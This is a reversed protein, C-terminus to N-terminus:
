IKRLISWNPAWRFKRLLYIRLSIFQFFKRSFRFADSKLSWREHVCPAFCTSARRVTIASVPSVVPPAKSIVKSEHTLPKWAYWSWLRISAPRHSTFYERVFEENWRSRQRTCLVSNNLAWWIKTKMKDQTNGRAFYRIIDSSM